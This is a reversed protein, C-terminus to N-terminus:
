KKFVGAKPNGGSLLYAVLDKLEEANLTNILAPPMQSVPSDVISKIQERKFTTPPTSPDHLYVNVGNDDEVVLGLAVRGDKATVIKSGYQDSIVKSPEVIAEVLDPVTFKNAVTTLDPGIAGGQGNFRHCASCSVAHFLNRGANFNRGKLKNKPGIAAVVQAKTWAKGPGKPPKINKPPAAVLSQGLVGALQQKEKVSLNAEAEKRINTLFGGYSAGGPHKSASVFFDFYDKRQQLSWGTKANRLIFAYTINQLPPMNDLMKAIPGGYRDNRKVLEAWAPQPTPKASNMLAVTKSVVTPSQLYTLVRSLETNLADTSAPLMPDLKAITAKRLADTPEGLRAFAVAYVRLAALHLQEPLQSMDIKNLAGVIGALDSAKGQKALALLAIVQKAADSEGLAKARWADVPQSEVAIRAAYRIFRDRSALHPWAATLAAPNKKGHFAELSRRTARAAAGEDSPAAPSTPADGEYTVRFLASDAGRGGVTFYLAGDDGVIADTVPLPKSWVFHEKTATYSSGDPELHIAYITGFTWDLIFLAEQYKAPFKAGYGFVVGTPSGPGIDVVSPLSDEYYAPWKGTGSRWGFESGSTAHCVRTPRYWPSGMDWEMDADYAFLEGHRNLAMDYQNRYGISLMEVNSGDPDCRAIWGGPALKGRAHGRADWQRPLLHDEGWNTPARSSDFKPPATHNGGLFYLGKGDPSKIVAHQGHEGGGKTAVILDAKDLEGDGNSDTIRYLGKGYVNAYLSDFAWCMGQAASVPVNVKEVKTTADADGLKAPTIRYIGKGGQDSAYLRGHDDKTMSVWSGQQGKPVNYIREAKFGEPVNLATAHTAKQGDTSVPAANIARAFAAHTISASWPLNTAGVSGVINANKWDAGAIQSSNWGRSGATSAKWSGDSAVVMKGDVSLAMTMAAIGGSDVARAAIFNDGAKLEGSVDVASLKSWDDSNMLREGNVWVMLANDATGVLMAKKPKEKLTFTKRFYVTNVTEQDGLWVWHPKTGGHTQKEPAAKAAAPKAAGGTAAHRKIVVDKIMLKMPPGQHVQLALVGSDARKGEHHDHVEATLQGNIYHKLVPGMAVIKYENWDESKINKQIAASDGVQEAKKKGAKDIVVKQGRLALIGRGKEEYLIGSYKKGSEFDAQYGGVVFKKEDIVRSRYQIGSNGGILKYKLTLEFNGVPKEHILFTNGRTPKEKTTQGVITGDEVRWFDPNGRWGDLNKGNFLEEGQATISLSLLAVLAVTFRTM